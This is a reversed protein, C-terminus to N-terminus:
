LQKCRVLCAVAREWALKRQKRGHETLALCTLRRRPADLATM